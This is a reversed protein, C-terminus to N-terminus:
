VSEKDKIIIRGKRGRSLADIFPTLSDNLFAEKIRWIKNRLSKTGSKPILIIGLEHERYKYLVCPILPLMEVTQTTSPDYGKPIVCHDIFSNCRVLVQRKEGDYVHHYLVSYDLQDMANASKSWWCESVYKAYILSHFPENVPFTGTLSARNWEDEKYTLTIQM